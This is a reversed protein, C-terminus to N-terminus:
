VNSVKEYFRMEILLTGGDFGLLFLIQRFECEKQSSDCGRTAM